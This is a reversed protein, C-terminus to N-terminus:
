EYLKRDEIKKKLLKSSSGMNLAKTWYEIAQDISQTQFLLDGYAELIEPDENGKNALAKDLWEKAKALNKEKYYLWARAYNTVPSTPLIDVANEAMEKAKALNEGRESLSLAYRALLEPAKPNLQLAKEYAQDSQTDDGLEHYAKGLNGLVQFQIYGDNGAILLAQELVGVAESYNGLATHARGNLYYASAKNPFYDIAEESTEALENYKKLEAFAYMLQEWVSYVTDDLELTKQYKKVAEAVRDTYLLVDGSASFAKAENPHVNELISTLKLIEDALVKNGTNAVEQILPIIRAMKLDIDVDIQEFVPALSRLYQVEDNKPAQNSAMAMVAKPSEPDIKLIEEYVEMAKDRRGIQEYFSSLLYWYDVDEPYADILRQLEQAAKKNDGMGVYLSHKRRILEESIGSKEELKQYVGLAEEIQNARVLFYALKFYYYENQPHKEVLNTYIEAAKKDLGMKQYVDALYKQYWENGPDIKLAKEFYQIAKETQNLEDYIKGLEFVAVDNDRDEKIYAEFLSAAKEFNGLIREKSAELFAEQLKIEEESIQEQAHLMQVFTCCLLLGSVLQIFRRRM